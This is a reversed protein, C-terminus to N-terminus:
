KISLRQNRHIIFVGTLVTFGGGFHWISLTEQLLIWALFATVIPQGILTPSVISAPMHGLAYNIALYGFVQTVIGLALFNLYTRMPYGSLPQKLVMTILLLLVTSSTASLWFYSLSDLYKRGRQTFLFYAAYFIGALLGLFSGMGLSIAQLTDLGLIALSGITALLLGGWFQKNLPEKFLFYAGFGVWLPATNALLTPNTAGSLMVGTSWFALDGAFALGGLIALVIGRVPLGASNKARKLFPWGLVVVAVLMRFFSTVAGPADAWRVFIASLGLSLAGIGLALYASLPFNQARIQTHSM